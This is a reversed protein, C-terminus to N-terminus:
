YNLASNVDLFFHIGQSCVDTGTDFGYTPRITSNNIWTNRNYTAYKLLSRQFNSNYEQTGFKPMVRSDNAMEPSLYLYRKDWKSIAGYVRREDCIRVISHIVVQNTRMKDNESHSALNVISGAPIALNAIAPINFTTSKNFKDFEKKRFEADTYAFLRGVEDTQHHSYTYVKKFGYVPHTLFSKAMLCYFVTSKSQIM